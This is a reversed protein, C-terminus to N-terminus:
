RDKERLVVPDMKYLNRFARVFSRRSRYGAERAIEEVTLDKGRLNNAAQTMRLDRLIEMPPRGVVAVFRHM